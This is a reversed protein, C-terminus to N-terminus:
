TSQFPMYIYEMICLVHTPVLLPLSGIFLLMKELLKSFIAELSASTKNGSLFVDPFSKTLEVVDNIQSKCFNM